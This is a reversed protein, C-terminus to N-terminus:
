PTKRRSRMEIGALIFQGLVALAVGRALFKVESMDSELVHVRAPVNELELRDLRKEHSELAFQQRADITEQSQAFLITAVVLHAMLGFLSGYYVVRWWRSRDAM